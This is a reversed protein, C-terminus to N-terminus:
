KSVDLQECQVPWEMHAVKKCTSADKIDSCDGLIVKVPCSASSQVVIRPTVAAIPKKAACGCLLLACFLGPLMYAGRNIARAIRWVKKGEGTPEAFLAPAPWGGAGLGAEAIRLSNGSDEVAAFGHPVGRRHSSAGVGSTLPLSRMEQRVQNPSTTM